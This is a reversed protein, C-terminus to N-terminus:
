RGMGAAQQDVPMGPVQGPHGAGGIGALRKTTAQDMPPAGSGPPGPPPGQSPPPTPGPAGGPGAGALQAQAQAAPDVTPDPNPVAVGMQKLVLSEHIAAHADFRAQDEMPLNEYDVSNRFDNIVKLHIQHNHYPKVQPEEGKLLATNERLQCRTHIDLSKTILDTGPLDLMNMFTQPDVLGPMRSQLEMVLQVRAAKSRPLASETSVHVDLREDIDAGSYRYAELENEDSWVRVTRDESWYQKALLLIQRGVNQIFQSLSTASISLKTDDAEQLAMIGAAPASSAAQGKSAENMGARDNMDKEDRQMGLEFQQAWQASPLELHPPTASIGTQYPISEFRSTVRQPDIQGNAYILKPTLQRRITAERSLTDNYDTQLAILDNVPTRGERTGIGPLWDCQVFPLEGHDYPFSKHEIVVQGSWTIVAGKPAAKCPVMWLQHINCWKADPRAPDQAGLLTSRRHSTAFPAAKSGSTGGSGHRKPRSRPPASPGAPKACRRPAPDVTLEFAPVDEMRVDGMFLSPNEGEKADEDEGVKDGADPDWWVYKYGHGLTWPWFLFKQTAVAWELRDCEHALIRTGVRAASVDNDNDSVPRTEPVPLDKTLKAILREGIPAIKNAALRVPTNPDQIDITPRRYNRMRSDWTVWQYGLMFALNLKMQSLPLATKGQDRKAELWQILEAPDAPIKFQKGAAAGRTVTMTTTGNFGSDSTNDSAM